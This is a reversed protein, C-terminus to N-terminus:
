ELGLTKHIVAHLRELAPRNYKALATIIDREEQEMLYRALTQASDSIQKAGQERIHAVAAEVDLTDSM